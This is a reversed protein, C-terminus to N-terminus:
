IQHQSKSPIHIQMTLLVTWSLATNSDEMLITLVNEELKLPKIPTFWTKYSQFHINDKVIKLCKEWVEVANNEM